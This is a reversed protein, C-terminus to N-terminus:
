GSSQAFRTAKRQEGAPAQTLPWSIWLLPPSCYTVPIALLPSRLKHRNTPNSQELFRQAGSSRALEALRDHPGSSAKNCYAAGGDTPLLETCVVIPPASCRPHGLLSGSAATRSDPQFRVRVRPHAGDGTLALPDEQTLRYGEEDTSWGRVAEPQRGEVELSPGVEGVGAVQRVGEEVDSIDHTAASVILRTRFSNSRRSASTRPRYCPFSPQGPWSARSRPRPPRVLAKRGPSSRGGLLRGDSPETRDGLEPHRRSNVDDASSPSRVSPCDRRPQLDAEVRHGEPNCGGGVEEAQEVAGSGRYQLVSGPRAMQALSVTSSISATSQEMSSLWSSSGALQPGLRAGPSLLGERGGQPRVAPPPILEGAWAASM